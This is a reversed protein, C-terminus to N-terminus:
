RAPGYFHDLAPEVLEDIAKGLQLRGAHHLSIIGHLTGWYLHALVEPDGDVEGAAVAARTADLLPYWSEIDSEAVAPPPEVSEVAFMMRYARPEALAFRVYCRGLRRLREIPRTDAAFREVEARVVEAFRAFCESRVADFIEAKNSFYRYPTMASCGLRRAIERITVAQYGRDVFLDVAVRSLQSRFSAIEEDTLERPM